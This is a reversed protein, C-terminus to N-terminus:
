ERPPQDEHAIYPPKRLSALALASVTMLVMTLILFSSYSGTRDYTAGAALPGFASGLNLAAVLGGFLGGFNRLGFHRTALYAIVDIEAGLTLGFISAAVSQSVPNEGHWLLLACAVNALLFIAAGVLHGPFRDLLLGTGLRGIVSFVGILSAIGAAALPATGSDTLIPVFHVLIGIVTFAFLSGAMLLKYFAATRLGEALSLGPPRGVPQATKEGRRQRDRAGRFWFLLVPFVLAVWFGGIAAFATRWGYSGILWTALVPFVTAGLPAGALTVAFSMGRSTEFRSAVASTWVLSQTWPACFAILAWLLVWNAIMGSATGLLAYASAMLIVGILGILRPGLRDVLMGIPVCLVAIGANSITLGLSVEARSWGFTQQLPEIFPGISYVHLVSVSYGLAAAFPLPWHGRWEAAASKRPDTM